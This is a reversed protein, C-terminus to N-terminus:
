GKRLGTDYERFARDKREERKAGKENRLISM